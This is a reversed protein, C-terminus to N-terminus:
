RQTLPVTRIPFTLLRLRYHVSELLRVGGYYRHFQRVFRFPRRHRSSQPLKVAFVGEGIKEGLSGQM